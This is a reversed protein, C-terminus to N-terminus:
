QISVKLNGSQVVSRTDPVTETVLSCRSSSAMAAFVPTMFLSQYLGILLALFIVVLFTLKEEGLAILVDLLNIDKEEELQTAADTLNPNM